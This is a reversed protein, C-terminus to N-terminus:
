KFERYCRNYLNKIKKSQKYKKIEQFSEQFQENINEKLNNELKFLENNTYKRNNM